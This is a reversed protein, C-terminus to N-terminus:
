EDLLISYLLNCCLVAYFPAIFYLISYLLVICFFSDSLIYCVCQIELIEGLSVAKVSLGRTLAPPHVFGLPSPSMARRISNVSLKMCSTHSDTGQSVMELTAAFM